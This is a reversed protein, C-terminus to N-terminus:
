IMITSDRCFDNAHKPGEPRKLYRSTNKVSSHLLAETVYNFQSSLRRKTINWVWKTHSHWIHVKTRTCHPSHALCGAHFHHRSNRVQSHRSTTLGFVMCVACVLDLSLNIQKHLRISPKSKKSGGQTSDVSCKIGTDMLEYLANEAAM